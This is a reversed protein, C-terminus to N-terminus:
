PIRGHAALWSITVLVAAFLVTFLAGFRRISRPQYLKKYGHAAWDAWEKQSETRGDDREPDSDIITSDGVERDGRRSRPTLSLGVRVESGELIEETSRSSV